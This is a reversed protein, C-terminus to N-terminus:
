KIKITHEVNQHNNLETLNILVDSDDNRLTYATMLEITANPRIATILDDHIYPATILEVGDQYAKIDALSGYISDDEAKNTYDFILYIQREDEGFSNWTIVSYGKVKLDVQDASLVVAEALDVRNKEILENRQADRDEAQKTLTELAKKSQNVADEGTPFGLETKEESDNEEEKEVCASLCLSAALMFILALKRKKM